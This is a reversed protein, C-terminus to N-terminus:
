LKCAESLFAKVAEKRDKAGFIASILAVGDIGTDYLKEINFLSIGGIGIVPIHVSKKIERLTEIALGTVNTKTTSGFIAGCGIYDAGANEAALAEKVNHASGGILYGDGLLARAKEIGMDSIGVHVGDAGIERALDPRDNIVLPVAYKECIQKLLIGKKIIEQDTANKDRLQLVGAGADLVETVAQVLTEGNKLFREDTIAYVSWNINEKKMRGLRKRDMIFLKRQFNETSEGSLVLVKM